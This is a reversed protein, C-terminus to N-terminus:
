RSLLEKGYRAPVAYTVAAAGHTRGAAFIGIVRGNEDFVPGSSNGHGTANVTLQYLDGVVSVTRDKGEGGRLVAGINGPTVTVKPIEVTETERGISDQPRIFGAIPPTVRPYGLVTIAEGERAADYNDLLDVAPASEPMNVKILAVDHRESTRILEARYPRSSGPFGVELQDNAGSVEAAMRTSKIMEDPRPDCDFEIEPGGAGLQIVDGSRLRVPSTVRQKNVFAGNRSGLDTLTLVTPDATDRAICAPRGSVLDDRDADFQVHSAPLRGIQLEPYQRLDLVDQEGAKSGSLHRLIVREINTEHPSAM